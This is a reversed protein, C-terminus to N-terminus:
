KKGFTKIILVYCSEHRPDKKVSKFFTEDTYLHHFQIYELSLSFQM